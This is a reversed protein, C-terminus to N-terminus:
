HRGKRGGQHRPKPCDRSFHGAEDCNWCVKEGGDGRSSDGLSRMANLMAYLKDVDMPSPGSGAHVVEGLVASTTVISGVVGSAAVAVQM